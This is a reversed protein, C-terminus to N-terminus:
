LLVLATVWKGDRNVDLNHANVKRPCAGPNDWEVTVLKSFRDIHIAKGHKCKPKGAYHNMHILYSYSYRVECPKILMDIAM